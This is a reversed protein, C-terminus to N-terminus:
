SEVLTFTRIVFTPIANTNYVCDNVGPGSFRYIQDAIYTDIRSGVCGSNILYDVGYLRLVVESNEGRFTLLASNKIRRIIIM